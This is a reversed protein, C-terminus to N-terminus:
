SPDGYGAVFDTAPWQLCSAAAAAQPERSAVGFTIVGPERRAPPAAGFPPPPALDRREPFSLVHQFVFLDSAPLNRHCASFALRPMLTHFKM